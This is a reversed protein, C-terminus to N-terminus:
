ASVQKKKLMAWLYLKDSAEKVNRSAMKRENCHAAIGVLDSSAPIKHKCAALALAQQAAPIVSVGKDSKASSFHQYIMSHRGVHPVASNKNGKNYSMAGENKSMIEEAELAAALMRHVLVDPYRRIPSTFHTYLPCALAYHGWEEEKDKLEGTCFYKALQMPKTAFLMLINFLVPDHKVRDEMKELSLRLAGSSSTDLDFENKECFEEFEKLKRMNPEPHRRLLASEPFANSIVRAVTMNALLMFEEVVFNSDKTKYMTSDYPTGDEDLLFMIKSNNLKLAGGQIRSDRRRKAIEHLARVDAEVESWSHNGCIQPIVTDSKSMGERVEKGEVDPFVGDIMDQAHAYTLKACSKIMTRGIWQDIIEGAPNINWVISFALRDVGPNLSCLEECLLRPLMPLVRQELYVSTSRQQAEKDLASGPSMFYSVDAIHVGVRFVGNRLREISLADDLDRATPPDISFVRQGRLDMRRKMESAPIKWPTKPLCDLSAQPFDPSHVNHEFLIAKLQPEIEGGQGLSKIVCAMPLYSDVRWADVRAAFLETSITSDGDKLRQQVDAPLGSPPVLMKPCRSDVPMLFMTGVPRRRQPSDDRMGRGRNGARQQPMELFGVVAERRPSKELIAVVKATPRKGPSSDILSTLSAVASAIKGNSDESSPRCGAEAEREAKSQVLTGLGVGLSERVNGRQVVKEFGNHQFVGSSAANGGTPRKLIQYVTNNKAETRQESLRGNSYNTIKVNHSHTEEQLGASKRGLGKQLSKQYRIDRTKEEVHSVWGNAVFDGGRSEAHWYDPKSTEAQASSGQGIFIEEGTYGEVEKSEECKAAGDVSSGCETNAHKIVSGKLRPWLSTPEIMVAVVDGEMQM